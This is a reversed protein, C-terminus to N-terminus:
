WRGDRMRAQAAVHKAYLAILLGVTILVAAATPVSHFCLSTQNHVQATGRAAFRMVFTLADLANMEAHKLAKTATLQALGSGTSVVGHRRDAQEARPHTPLAVTVTVADERKDKPGFARVAPRTDVMRAGIILQPHRM